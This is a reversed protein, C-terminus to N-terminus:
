EVSVPNLLAGVQFDAQQKSGFKAPIDVSVTFSCINTCLEVYLFIPMDMAELYFILDM